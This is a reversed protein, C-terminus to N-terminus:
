SFVIRCTGDYVVQTVYFAKTQQTCTVEQVGIGYGVGLSETQRPPDVISFTTLIIIEIIILPLTYLFAQVNNLQSRQFGSPATLLKAM